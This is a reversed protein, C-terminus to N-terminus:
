VQVKNLILIKMCESVRENMTNLFNHFFISILAIAIGFATAYLATGIGSSVASPDSIASKSLALFTDVIGFITGLLGLLPATTVTTDLIWLRKSFEEKIEIYSADMLNSKVNESSTQAAINNLEHIFKVILNKGHSNLNIKLDQRLNVITKKATDLNVYFLIFREIAVFISLFLLILLCAFIFHHIFEAIM